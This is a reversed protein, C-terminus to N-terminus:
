LFRIRDKEFIEKMKSTVSNGVDFRSASVRDSMVEFFVLFCMTRVVGGGGHLSNPVNRFQSM